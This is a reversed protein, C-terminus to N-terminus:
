NIMDQREVIFDPLKYGANILWRLNYYVGHDTENFTKYLTEYPIGTLRSITKVSPTWNGTSDKANQAAFAHHIIDKTLQPLEEYKKLFEDKTM